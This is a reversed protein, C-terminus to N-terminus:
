KVKSAIHKAAKVLDFKWTLGVNIAHHKTYNNSTWVAHLRVDKNEKLPFYEVGAGYYIYDEGAILYAPMVSSTEENALIMEDTDLYEGWFDYDLPESIREWGFKGFLRLSEGINYSPMVNLTIDNFLNKVETGRMIYDIVLSFDGMYFTNGLAVMKVFQKPAYELLNLTWISEYCDWAGYWGLNYSYMNEERPVYVFPSNTIQFAFSTTESKNTWMAKASWQSFAFSNYFMSNMDFYSDIDYADYEYSGVILIDKGATFSFGGIGYTLTVWDTNDFVSDDEGHAAFLRQSLSYTFHKSIKGDINLYFGDGGFGASGSSVRNYSFRSDLSIAPIFDDEEEVVNVDEGSSSGATTVSSNVEQAWVTSGAM